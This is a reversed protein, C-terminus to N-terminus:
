DGEPTDYVPRQSIKTDRKADQAWRSRTKAERLERRRRKSAEQDTYQISKTNETDVRKPCTPLGHKQGPPYTYLYYKKRAPVCYLLGNNHLRFFCTYCVMTKRYTKPTKPCNDTNKLCTDTHSLSWCGPARHAWPATILIQTEKARKPYIHRLSIDTDSLSIQTQSLYKHRKARKSRRKARKPYRKTERPDTSTARSRRKPKTPDRKSRYQIM